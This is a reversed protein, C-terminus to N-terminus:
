KCTLTTGKGNLTCAGFTHVGCAGSAGAAADAGLVVTVRVPGTPAPIAALSRMLKVDVTGRSARVDKLSLQRLRAASGVACSPPLADTRNTYRYSTQKTNVKWGENGAGCPSPGVAGPPVPTTTHTLDLLPTGSALDEILVQAGRTTADLPTYGAPSGAAFVLRGGFRLVEDGPVGGLRSIVLKPKAFTTGGTCVASAGPAPADDDFIVGEGLADAFVAGSSLSVMDLFFSEHGEALADGHVTVYITKPGDGPQFTVVGSVPDYDQGAVASGDVTRYTVDIPVTGPTLAIEFAMLGTTGDAPEALSADGFKVAPHAPNYDILAMASTAWAGLGAGGTPASLLLPIMEQGEQDLDFAVPIQFTKVVEGDGFTLTGAVPTYDVGPTASGNGTAYHVTVTGSAGFTRTVLVTVLGDHEWGLVPNDVFQLTGPSPGGLAACPSLESTDNGASTATATVMPETIEMPLTLSWTAHGALDTFVDVAGVFTRAEGFGSPDCVPSTFVEIRYSQLPASDLVGQIDTEGGGAIASTVVPFNQTHNPGFDGDGSDNASVWRPDIDFALEDNDFFSNGLVANGTGQNLKIGAWGNGAIVNGAGPVTGGILNDSGGWIRMGFSGNGFLTTGDPGTGIKNGQIVNANAFEDYISIGYGANGSLVNGAGPATGGILNGFGYLDIGDDQNPIAATGAANLGVVNGQIVVGTVTPAIWVGSRTNGSMLNGAGPISGGITVDSAYTLVAWGANALAATGAGNTGMRNGLVTTGVAADGLYVASSGNGSILNGAGAGSGGITTEAANSFIGAGANGVDTTGTLNTGIVNGLVVGHEAGAGFGIGGGANGSVVNGTGVSTGGIRTATGWVAIGDGANPIPLQGAADLGIVNAEVVNGAGDISLGRSTNGSIVNGAGATGIYNGATFTRVGSGQNPLAATGAANVGIYNGYVANLVGGNIVIGGWGNGSVVNRKGATLGGVTNLSTTLYIGEGTNPLATTGAVNTGIYCGEITAQGSGVYIGRGDFRNLVLGRIVTPGGYVRLGTSSGANHGNLEVIPTGAWGPQTTGDITVAEYLIPLPSAPAITKNAGLAFAITDPGAHANADDIAKRLSGGGGDNINTVTYTLARATAPGLLTALVALARITKGVPSTTM